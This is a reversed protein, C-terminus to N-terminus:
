LFLILSRTKSCKAKIKRACLNEIQSKNLKVLQSKHLLRFISPKIFVALSHSFRSSISAHRPELLSVFSVSSLVENPAPCYCCCRIFPLFFYHDSSVGSFNFFVSPMSSHSFLVLSYLVGLISELSSWHHFVFLAAFWLNSLQSGAM